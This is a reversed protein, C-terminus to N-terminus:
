GEKMAFSIIKCTTDDYEVYVSRNAVKAALILAWFRNRESESNAPMMLQGNVCPTAAATYWVVVNGATYNQLRWGTPVASLSVVAANAFSCFTFLTIFLLKKM